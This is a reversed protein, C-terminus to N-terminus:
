KDFPLKFLKNLFKKTFFFKLPKRSMLTIKKNISYFFPDPPNFPFELLEPAMKEILKKHHEIGIRTTQSLALLTCIFKQSNAIHIKEGKVLDLAQQLSSLWGALRQELYFKDRWDVNESYKKEYKQLWELYKILSQHSLSNEKINFKYLVESLNMKNNNYSFDSYYHGHGMEFVQGFLIIDDDNTWDWQGNSFYVRDNEKVRYASHNDFLMLKQHSFNGKNIWKHDIGIKSAIDLPIVMDGKSVPSTVPKNSFFSWKNTKRMTYTKFPKQSYLTTALILRSDYGASLPVWINKNMKAVNNVGTILYDKLMIIADDESITLFKEPFLQKMKIEKKNLDIYQSPLLSYVERINTLPPPIWNMQNENIFTKNVTTKNRLNNLISVSSSIWLGQENESYFLGLLGSFDSHIENEYILGWRGSWTSIVDEINENGKKLEEIPDERDKDIQVAIGILAFKKGFLDVGIQVPLTECYSLFIGESIPIINWNDNIRIPKPGLVFQRRHLKNQVEM